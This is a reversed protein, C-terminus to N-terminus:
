FQSVATTGEPQQYVSAAWAYVVTRKHKEFDASSPMGGLWWAFSRLEVDLNRQVAAGSAAATDGAAASEIGTGAQRGHQAAINHV